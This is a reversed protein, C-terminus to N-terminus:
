ARMPSGDALNRTHLVANIEATRERERKEQEEEELIRVQYKEFESYVGNEGRLIDRTKSPFSAITVPPDRPIQLRGGGGAFDGFLEMGSVM